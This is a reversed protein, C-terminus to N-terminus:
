LEPRGPLRRHRVHKSFRTAYDKLHQGLRFTVNPKFCESVFCRPGGSGNKGKNSPSEPQFNLSLFVAFAIIACCWTPSNNSASPAELPKRPRPFGAPDTQRSDAFLESSLFRQLRWWSLHGYASHLCKEVESDVTATVLEMPM